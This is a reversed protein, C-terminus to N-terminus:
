SLSLLAVAIAEAVPMLMEGPATATPPPPPPPNVVGGCEIVGAYASFTFACILTATACFLRLYRM